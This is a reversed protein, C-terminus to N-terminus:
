PKSISETQICIQETPDKVTQITTAYLIGGAMRGTVKITAGGVISLTAGRYDRLNITYSKNKIDLVLLPANKMPAGIDMHYACMGKDLMVGDIRSDAQVDDRTRILGIQGTIAIQTPAAAAAQGGPKPASSQAEAWNTTVGSFLAVSVICLALSRFM